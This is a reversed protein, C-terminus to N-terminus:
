KDCCNKHVVIEKIDDDKDIMFVIQWSEETHNKGVQILYAPYMDSFYYGDHDGLIERIESIDKGIFPKQNKLLSCTMSARLDPTANKFAKADFEKEGWKKCVETTTMLKGRWLQKALVFGASFVTTISILLVIRKM